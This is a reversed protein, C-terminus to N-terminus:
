HTRRLNSGVGMSGGAPRFALVMNVDAVDHQNEAVAVAMAGESRAGDEMTDADADANPSAEDDESTDPDSDAGGALYEAIDERRFENLEDLETRLGRLAELSNV